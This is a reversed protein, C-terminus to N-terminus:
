SRVQLTYAERTPTAIMLSALKAAQQQFVGVTESAAWEAESAWISISMAKGSSPDTLLLLEQFGALQSIVPLIADYFLTIFEELRTPHLFFTTVRTYM